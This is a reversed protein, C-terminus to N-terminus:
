HPIPARAVELQSIAAELIEDDSVDGILHSSARLVKACNSYPRYRVPDTPGFVSVTPVGYAAAIHGNGTDASVHLVSGAIWGMSESLSLKGVQSQAGAVAPEPDGPGGLYAIQYGIALLQSGLWEWRAVPLVKNMAGGGVSITVLKPVDPRDVQPMTWQPKVCDIGCQHAVDLNWDVMHRGKPSGTAIPNLTRTFVDTAQAALRKKPMCLRLFIGTKSHGQLDIGLDFRLKRLGAYFALQERWAAPGMAKWRKRPVILKEDVLFSTDLVDQCREEVAWSIRADPVQDRLARAVPVAMVCDGIASFRIILCKV